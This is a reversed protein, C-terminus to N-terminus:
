RGLSRSQSRAQDFTKGPLDRAFNTSPQKRLPKKDTPM